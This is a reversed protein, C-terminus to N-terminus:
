RLQRDTVQCFFHWVLSARKFCMGLLPRPDVPKNASKNASRKLEGATEEFVPPEWQNVSLCGTAHFVGGKHRIVQLSACSEIGSLLLIQQPVLYHLNQSLWERQFSQLHTSGLLFPLESTRPNVTGSKTSVAEYHPQITYTLIPRYMSPSYLPPLGSPKALKSKCRTVRCHAGRPGRSEGEVRGVHGKHVLPRQAKRM